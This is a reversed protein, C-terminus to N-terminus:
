NVLSLFDAVSMGFEFDKSIEFEILNTILLMAIILMMTTDSKNIQTESYTSTVYLRLTNKFNPQCPKEKRKIKSCKPYINSRHEDLFKIRTPAKDVKSRITTIPKM